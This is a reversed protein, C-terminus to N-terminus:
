RCSSLHGKLRVGTASSVLGVRVAFDVWGDYARLATASGLEAQRLYYLLIGRLFPRNAFTATVDAWAATVGDSCTAGGGGAPFIVIGGIMVGDGTNTNPVDLLGTTQDPLHFFRTYLHGGPDTCRAGTISGDPNSDTFTAPPSGRFGVLLGGGPFSFPAEAAFRLEFNGIVGDGFANQPIQTESVVQTWGSATAAVGQPNTIQLTTPDLACAAPNKNATAFFITRRVQSDNAERMDFAIVDGVELNFAPVNRYIFGSFSFLDNRGFPVANLGPFIDTLAIEVKSTGLHNAPTVTRAPSATRTQGTPIHAVPANSRPGALDQCGITAALAVSFLLHRRIPM